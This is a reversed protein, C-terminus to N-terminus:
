YEPSQRVWRGPSTSTSPASSPRPTFRAAHSSSPCSRSTPPTVLVSGSGIVFTFMLLLAPSIQGAVTLAALASGAVALGGQVAILLRRRDLPTPWCAVSSASCCTRSCTPPRSSRSSSGANAAHVLLWQAGVTQMWTGVNSTLSALWLSRFVTLHLPAWTSSAPDRDTMVDRARPNAAGACRLSGRGQPSQPRARGHPPPGPQSLTSTSSRPAAMSFPAVLL